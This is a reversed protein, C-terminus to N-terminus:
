YPFTVANSPPLNKRKIKEICKNAYIYDTFIKPKTILKSM